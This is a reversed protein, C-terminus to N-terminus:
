GTRGAPESAVRVIEDAMYVRDRKRGTTERLIGASVLRDVQRQAPTWTLETVAVARKVTIAPTAFLEDVLRLAIAPTRTNQLRHHYENRLGVLRTIRDVAEAGQTMVGSLFFELWESWRNDRSVGLLGDYYDRRHQDIFESLYLLPAPLIGDVCLLLTILLRGIRGNGDLFPHIAEFQYHIMALRVLPPLEAPEHLFRELADLCPQLHEPPPPVYTASAMTSGPGGIWNQSRRFEGPASHGGRVGHMLIAHMECMLRKSVPLTEMRKLGYDMAKVYNLVEGADGEESESEDRAELLAVDSLSARTGEIRSSHVAENRKVVGVLLHPNPMTRGIGALQGIARDADSLLRTLAPSLILQPPLDAPVFAAYGSIGSGVQVIRGSSKAFDSARM